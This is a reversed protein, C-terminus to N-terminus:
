IVAEANHIAQEKLATGKNVSQQIKTKTTDIFLKGDDMLDKGADVIKKRTSKGSDPALLVGAIAGAALGAALAILVKSGTKM